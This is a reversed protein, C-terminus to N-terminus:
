GLVIIGESGDLELSDMGFKSDTPSLLLKTNEDILNQKKQKKFDDRIRIEDIDIAESNPEARFYFECKKWKGDFFDTADKRICIVKHYNQEFDKLNQYERFSDGFSRFWFYLKKFM